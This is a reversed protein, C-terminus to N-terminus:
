TKTGTQSATGKLKGTGIRDSNNHRAKDKDQGRVQGQGTGTM